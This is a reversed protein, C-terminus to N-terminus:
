KIGYWERRKVVAGAYPFYECLREFDQPFSDHLWLLRKTSLDIGSNVNKVSEDPPLIKYIKCYNIVDAKRWKKLPYLVFDALNYSDFFRNKLATSDVEKNGAIIRKIGTQYVIAKYLDTTGFEKIKSACSQHIDCYTRNKFFRFLMPSPYQLIEINYKRSADALRRELFDLGPVLYLFFGTVKKFVRCALDLCVLSDKGGSFAVLVHEYQGAVRQLEKITETFLVYEM